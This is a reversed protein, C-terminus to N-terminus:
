SEMFSVAGPKCFREHGCMYVHESLGMIRLLEHEIESIWVCFIEIPFVSTAASQSLFPMKGQLYDSMVVGNSRCAVYETIGQVMTDGRKWVGVGM